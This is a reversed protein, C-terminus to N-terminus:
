MGDWAERGAAARLIERNSETAAPESDGFIARVWHGDTANPLLIFKDGFERHDREMLSYREDIDAVYYDRKYDNLNDGLMLILEHSQSIARKTPMKNSTQKYVTLHEKDAFPFRLYRLQRLAYEYTKDGQDRNTVYFVEVNNKYCYALFDSAGPVPTILNKPIWRDWIADDFFDVGNNILYGWYSAAHIITNDVDTIIALPKGLNNNRELAQTVRLTALNFAQYCLAGFEAATASWAVAWLLPNKNIVASNKDKSSSLEDTHALMPLSLGGLLLSSILQRRDISEKYNKRM